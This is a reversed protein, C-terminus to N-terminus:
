DEEEEDFDWMNGPLQTGREKISDPVVVNDSGRLNIFILNPLNALCGPISKL